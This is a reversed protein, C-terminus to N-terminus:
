SQGETRSPVLRELATGSLAERVEDDVYGFKLLAPLELRIAAQRLAPDWELRQGEQSENIKSLRAMGDRDFPLGRLDLVRAVDAALSEMRGVYDAFPTAYQFLLMSVYGPHRALVRSMFVNFDPDGLGNLGANPHWRHPNGEEGWQNWGRKGMYRWWSEYWTLPNRVFCFTFPRQYRHGLFKRRFKDLAIGAAMGLVQKEPRLRVENVAREYTAHKHGIERRILGADSLVRAVWNGGTKPVHLYLSGDTLLIAM